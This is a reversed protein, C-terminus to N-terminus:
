GLLGGQVFRVVELRDGDALQVEEHRARPVVEGNHEVAVARSDLGLSDLLEVLRTGTALRRQEGNVTVRIM